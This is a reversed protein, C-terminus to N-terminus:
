SKRLDLQLNKPRCLWLVPILLLAAIPLIRLYLLVEYFDKTILGKNILPTFNIAVIFLLLWGIINVKQRVWDWYTVFYWVLYIFVPIIYVYAYVQQHPYLLPVMLFVYCIEWYEKISNNIKKFPLSRLFVLTLSAFFLRVINLILTVTHLDLNVFNRKFSLVGNTNTLYVPVLAVLSSPGDEAEVNWQKNSPNIIGAWERLLQVNRDWGIVIAPLLLYVVFCICTLLVAKFNKRYLLYLLFPLPLLKINIALALLAAGKLTKGNRFYKLSQLTSWLLFTTLQVFGLDVIIFRCSLFIVISLWIVKQQKTLVPLKNLENPELYELSLIWIRYLLFYSLLIWIIQPIIIPLGAFPSLLLAFLPSNYYQLDQIFPPKYIDQGHILKGGAYVFVQFDHGLNASNRAFYLLGIAILTLFIKLYRNNM